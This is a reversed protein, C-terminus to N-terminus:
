RKDYLQGKCQYFKLLFYQTDGGSYGAIHCMAVSGYERKLNQEMPQKDKNEKQPKWTENKADVASLYGLGRAKGSLRRSIVDSRQSKPYSKIPKSM